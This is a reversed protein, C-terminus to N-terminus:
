LLDGEGALNNFLNEHELMFKDAFDNLDDSPLTPEYSNMFIDHRVPWFENKTGKILWDGPYCIMDGELTHITIRSDTMIFPVVAKGAFAQIEAWNTTSGLWRIADVITPKHKYKM